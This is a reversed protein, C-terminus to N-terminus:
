PWFLICKNMCQRTVRFLSPEMRLNWLILGCSGIKSTPWFWFQDRSGVKSPRRKSQEPCCKGDIRLRMKESNIRIIRIPPRAQIPRMLSIRIMFSQHKKQNVIWIKKFKRKFSNQFVISCKRPLIVKKVTLNSLEDLCNLNMMAWDQNFLAVEMILKTKPETKISRSFKASTVRKCERFSVMKTRTTRM